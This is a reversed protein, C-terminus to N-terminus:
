ASTGGSGGRVAALKDVSRPLPGNIAHGICLLDGTCYVSIGGRVLFEYSMGVMDSSATLRSPPHEDKTLAPLGSSDSLCTLALGPSARM